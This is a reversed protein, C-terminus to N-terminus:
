QQGRGFDKKNVALNIGFFMLITVVGVLVARLVGGFGDTLGLWDLVFFLVVSLLVALPPSWWQVQMKTTATM